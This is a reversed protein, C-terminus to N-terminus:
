EQGVETWMKLANHSNDRAVRRRQRRPYDIPHNICHFGTHVEGPVYHNRQVLHTTVAAIVVLDVDCQPGPRSHNYEMVAIEQGKNM